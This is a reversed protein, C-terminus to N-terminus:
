FKFSIGLNLLSVYWGIEGYVAFNDTFYYRAGLYTDSVFSNNYDYHGTNDSIIKYGLMLGAYTDLKDVFTYHLSGRAGILTTNIRWDLDKWKVSSHGILGGVGISSNDDWVHGIIGHEYSATIAPMRTVSSWLFGYGSYLTGGFGIGVNIANDGKTFAPTQAHAAVSMTVVAIAIIAMKRFFVSKM